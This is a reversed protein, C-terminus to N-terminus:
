RNVDIGITLGNIFVDQNNRDRRIGLFRAPQDVREGSGDLTWDIMGSPRAIHDLWLGTWGARFTVSRTIQYRAELRLEAGPTFERIFDTAGIHGPGMVLPQGPAGPGGPPTLASAISGSQRVNQCNLGALFRGETNLMWRGRKKFYRAGLQGAIIHNEASTLFDTNGLLGGAGNFIFKEDFELYRPGLYWEFFGGNHLQNSRGIYDAEVSWTYTRNELRISDFTVPLDRIFPATQSGIYGDLLKLANVGFTPDEFLVDVDNAFISQSLQHLQYVSVMWGHNGSVRGLEIRNGVAFDAVFQGTDLTNDQFLQYNDPDPDTIPVNRYFPGTSSTTNGITAVNPASINWYLIDYSFFFGENPQPGRGRSSVDAPAFLQMGSLGQGFSMAGTALVLLGVAVSKLTRNILM